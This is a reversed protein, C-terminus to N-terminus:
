DVASKEYEIEGEPANARVSEIGALCAERSTYAQSSAVIQGNRAYLNFRYYGAKDEYLQFKPNTVRKETPQTLDELKAKPGNKRVSEIGSYLSPLATYLESTAITEGNAAKLHFRLGKERQYILFKGM